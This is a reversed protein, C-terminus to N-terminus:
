PLKVARRKAPRRKSGPLDSTAGLPELSVLLKRLLAELTAREKADLAAVWQHEKAIRTEIVSEIVGLAQRTLRILVGRRDDPDATREVFGRKELAHLMNTLGGSSVTAFRLQNIAHPALAYPAGRARLVTLIGAETPNLGFHAIAREFDQRFLDQLRLIRGVIQKPGFDLHPFQRQEHGVQVEVRDVRRM